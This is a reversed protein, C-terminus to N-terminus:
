VGLGWVGLGYVGLGRPRGTISKVSAWGLLPPRPSVPLAVKAVKSVDYCQSIQPMLSLFTVINLVERNCYHVSQITDFKALVTNCYQLM